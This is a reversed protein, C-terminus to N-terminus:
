PFSLTSEDLEIGNNSQLIWESSYQTSNCNGLPDFDPWLNWTEFSNFQMVSANFDLTPTNHPIILSPEVGLTEDLDKVLSAQSKLNNMLDSLGYIMKSSASYVCGSGLANKPSSGPQVLLGGFKQACQTFLDLQKDFNPHLQGFTKFQILNNEVINKCHNVIELVVQGIPPQFTNGGLKLSTCEIFKALIGQMKDPYREGFHQLFHFFHTSKQDDPTTLITHVLKDSLQSAEDAGIDNSTKVQGSESRSRLVTAYLLGLGWFQAIASHFRIELLSCIALLEARDEPDSVDTLLEYASNIEELCKREADEITIFLQSPNMWNQKSNALVEVKIYTATIWKMHFIMIPSCLQTQMLVQYTHIHPAMRILANQLSRFPISLYGGLFLGDCLLHLGLISISLESEFEVSGIISLEGIHPGEPNPLLNLREAIRYALNIYLEGKVAQHAVRQSTALATPKFNTLFRCVAISDLHTPPSFIFDQGYTSVAQELSQKLSPHQQLVGVSSGCATLCLLAFLLQTAVNSSSSEVSILRERLNVLSPIALVFLRHWVLRVFDTLLLSGPLKLRRM